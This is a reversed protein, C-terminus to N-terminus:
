TRGSFPLHVTAVLGLHDSGAVRVTEADTATSNFTLIHDIGILPPLSNDAPFSRALGAGSQEVADRYGNRLLERFPRMDYTANFDGAVVVAGGASRAALEDLTGPMEALEARWDDIPQPWPGVIHTALVVIDPTSGPVAIHVTLSHLEFGAIPSWGTIPHRSWVGTGAAVPRADIAHHPFDRGVGAQELKHALEPTLEQVVLVDARERALRAVAEPDATGTRLNATLVRVPVTDLSTTSWKTFLPLQVSVGTATVVLAAAAAWWRRHAASLAASLPAGVSLYPALAAMTLVAHSSVPVVRAILGGVAVVFAPAGLAAVVTRLAFHRRMAPVTVDSAHNPSLAYATVLTGGVLM